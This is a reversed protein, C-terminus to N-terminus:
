YALALLDLLEDFSSVLAAHTQAELEEKSDIGWTVLVCRLGAREAARADMWTDGVYVCDKREVGLKTRAFDLIDPNPKPLSVDNATVVLDVFKIVGGQELYLPIEKSSGNTVVALKFGKRDLEALADFAGPYLRVYKPLYEDIWLKELTSSWKRVAGLHRSEPPVLAEAIYDNTRGILKLISARDPLPWRKQAFVDRIMFYFADRSDFLTGDVDFMIARAYLRRPGKAM